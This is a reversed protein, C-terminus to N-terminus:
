STLSLSHFRETHFEIPNELSSVRHFEHMVKSLLSMIHNKLGVNNLDYHKEQPVSEKVVDSILYKYRESYVEDKEEDLYHKHKM